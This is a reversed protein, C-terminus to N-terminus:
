IYESGQDVLKEESERKMIGKRPRLKQQEYERKM